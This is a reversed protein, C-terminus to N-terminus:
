WFAKIELRRRARRIKGNYVTNVIVSENFEKLCVSVQCINM